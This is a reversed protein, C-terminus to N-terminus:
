KYLVTNQKKTKNQEKIKLAKFKLLTQNLSKKLKQVTKQSASVKFPPNNQHIVTKTKQIM